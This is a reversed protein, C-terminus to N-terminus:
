SDTLSRVKVVLQAVLDGEEFFLRETEYQLEDPNLVMVVDANDPVNALAEILEIKTM